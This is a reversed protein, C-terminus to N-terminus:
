NRFLGRHGFLPSRDAISNPGSQYRGIRAVEDRSGCVLPVRQHLATPKITMIRETGDTAGGGAQELVFAIPNAEYVLRLRGQAYGKRADGPYLYIGGRMLIRYCDAVLSAIWRMNYNRGLTGDAGAFCDDIYARIQDSWHRYNAANIAFETADTPCLLNEYAMVFANLRNSYVFVQTGQGLTMVLALQPGYVFFGAALQMDGVQMFTANPDAVVDGTVPLIAFITGISVNTDINSSGDLPDIALGLPAKDNLLAVTDLEESAYLAIPSQGAAALFVEDAYVDLEKQADGASNTTDRAAGIAGGLVGQNITDRVKIAAEALNRITDTVAASAGSQASTNLFADLTPVAM